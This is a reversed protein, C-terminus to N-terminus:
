KLLVVTVDSQQDSILNYEKLLNILQMKNWIGLKNYAATCHTKVTEDSLGLIGAMERRTNGQIILKIVDAERPTLRYRERFRSLGKVEKGIVLVGITDGHADRLIKLKADVLVPRSSGSRYHMRCSFSDFAGSMMRGLEQEIDSSEEIIESFQRNVLSKRHVGTIEEAARNARVIAFRNDLLLFSEDISAIICESVLAPSIKLFQYKVIAFWIGGMWIVFLIPSLARTNYGRVGSLLIEEVVILVISVLMTSSIIRGQKREKNTAARKTWVIFCVAGTMMCIFYYLVVYAFWPSGYDPLFHWYEGVKVFDNFLISGAFTHYYIPIAPLYMVAYVVPRLRILRTLALCFHVTLPYIIINPLSGLKFWFLFDDKTDASYVFIASLAWLAMGCCVLSFLRNVVSKRDLFLTNIGLYLYVMLTMNALLSIINM